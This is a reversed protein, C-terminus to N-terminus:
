SAGHESAHERDPWAPTGPLQLPDRRQSKRPARPAIPDSSFRYGVHRITEVREAFERGLKSRLRHVHIDVTRAAAGSLRKGWVHEMLEYRSVVRERHSLLYHLLEAERRTMRVREREITAERDYLELVRTSLAIRQAPPESQPYLRCLRMALQAMAVSDGTFATENDAFSWLEELVRDLQSRLAAAVTDHPGDVQAPCSEDLEADGTTYSTAAAQLSELYESSVETGKTFPNDERQNRSAPKGLSGSFQL